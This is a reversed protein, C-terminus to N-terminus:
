QIYINACKKAMDIAKGDNKKLQNVRPIVDVCNNINPENINQNM